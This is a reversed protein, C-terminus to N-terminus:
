GELLEGTSITKISETEIVSGPRALITPQVTAFKEGRNSIIGTWGFEVQWNHLVAATLPTYVLFCAFTCREVVKEVLPLTKRRKLLFEQRL